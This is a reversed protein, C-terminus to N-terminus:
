LKINRYKDKKYTLLRQRAVSVFLSLGGFVLLANFLKVLAPVGPDSLFIFFAIASIAAGLLAGIGLLWWGLGQSTSAVFDQEIAKLVEEDSAPYSLQKMQEKVHRLEAHIRQCHACTEMHVRVRQTEQQTLESDLYGSLQAGIADCNKPTDTMTQEM